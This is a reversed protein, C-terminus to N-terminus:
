LGTSISGTIIGAITDDAADRIASPLDFAENYEIIIGGNALDITYIEGGLSGAEIGAIIQRLVVEWHYVQSAVVLDPALVTQESQTGFWLVDNETAVGVAGVVMQATGTLVDAGAQVHETAAEAALAVDSFSGTYAVLVDAAPETALVGNRYGDVFLQADGVELPGVVGIVDSESLLAGVVGMVYGGEDAAVEYSSVNALGFTDAATGWAFATDPFDAAIEIVSTGYQSGHAIVLDYGAAAYTRIADAAEDTVFTNDTIDIQVGSREAAIVNAADVISQTFALDDRASPAVIGIRLSADDGVSVSYGVEFEVRRELGAVESSGTSTSEGRADVLLRDEPTGQAILYDRVNEARTLSLQLNGEETGASDTYGVVTVEPGPYADIAEAVSDLIREQLANLDTQGSAFVVPTVSTIRQLEADLAAARDFEETLDVVQDIGPVAAVVAILGEPGEDPTVGGLTAVGAAVTVNIKDYGAAAIAELAAARIEPDTASVTLGSTDLPTTGALAASAGIAAERDRDTTVAGILFITGSRQDVVISDLGLGGLVARIQDVPSAEAPLVASTTSTPQTSDGTSASDTRWFFLMWAVAAVAVAAVIVAFIPFSRAHKPRVKELEQLAAHAARLREEERASPRPPAAAPPEPVPEEAPQPEPEPIPKRATSRRARTAALDAERTRFPTAEPALVGDDAVSEDVPAAPDSPDQLEQQVLPAEVPEPEVPAPVSADPEPIEPVPAVPESVQPPHEVATTEIIVTDPPPPPPPPPTPPAVQDPPALIKSRLEEGVTRPAAPPAGPPPRDVPAQTAAGDVEASVKDKLRALEERNASLEDFLRNRTDEDPADRLLAWLDHQRETLAVLRAVDDVDGTSPSGTQRDM